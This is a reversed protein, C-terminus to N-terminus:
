QFDTSSSVISYVKSMKDRLVLTEDDFDSYEANEVVFYNPELLLLRIRNSWILEDALKGFFLTENGM